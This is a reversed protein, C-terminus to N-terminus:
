KFFVGFSSCDGNGRISEQEFITKNVCKYELYLYKPKRPCPDPKFESNDVNIECTKQGDCKRKVHCRSVPLLCNYNGNYGCTKLWGFGGYNARTIM